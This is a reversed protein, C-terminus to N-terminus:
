VQGCDIQGLKMMQIIFHINRTKIKVEYYQSSNANYVPKFWAFINITFSEEM